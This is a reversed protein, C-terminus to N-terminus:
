YITCAVYSLTVLDCVEIETVTGIFCEHLVKAYVIRRTIRHLM